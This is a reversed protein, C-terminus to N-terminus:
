DDHIDNETEIIRTLHKQYAQPKANSGYNSHVARELIDLQSNMYPEMNLNFSRGIDKLFNNAIDNARFQPDKYSSDILTPHRDTFRQDNGEQFSLDNSIYTGQRDFDDAAGPTGIMPNSSQGNVGSTGDMM